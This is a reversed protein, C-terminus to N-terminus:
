CLCLVGFFISYSFFILLFIWIGRITHSNGDFLARLVVLTIGSDYYEQYRDKFIKATFYICMLWSTYKISKHRSDYLPLVGPQSGPQVPDVGTLRGMKNGSPFMRVYTMSFHFCNPEMNGLPFVCGIACILNFLTLPRL